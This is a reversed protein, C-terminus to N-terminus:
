LELVLRTCGLAARSVCIMMTAGQVREAETLVLDHHQIIGDLVTTECTGCIGRRCLSPAVVGAETVVDLISKGTPIQVTFGSESLEVEFSGAPNAGHPAHAVGGAIERLHPRRASRRFGFIGM